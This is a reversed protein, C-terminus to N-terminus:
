PLSFFQQIAVSSAPIFTHLLCLLLPLVFSHDTNTGLFMVPLLISLVSFHSTERHDSSRHKTLLLIAVLESCTVAMSGAATWGLPCLYGFFPIKLLPRAPSIYLDFSRFISPPALMWQRDNLVCIWVFNQAADAQPHSSRNM